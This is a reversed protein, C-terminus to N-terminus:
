AAAIRIFIDLDLEVLMKPTDVIAGWFDQKRKYLIYYEVTNTEGLGVQTKM